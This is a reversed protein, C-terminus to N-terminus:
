GMNERGLYLRNGDMDEVWAWAGDSLCDSISEQADLTDLAAQLSETEMTGSVADTKYTIKM